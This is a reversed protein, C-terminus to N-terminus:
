NIYDQVQLNLMKCRLTKDIFHSEYYHRRMINYLNCSMFGTFCGACHQSWPMGDTFM